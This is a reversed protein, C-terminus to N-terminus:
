LDNIFARADAASAFRRGKGKDLERSAREYLRMKEPRIEEVIDISLRGEAFAKAAYKLVSSFPVGERKARRMAKAKVKSDINFVVQTTM